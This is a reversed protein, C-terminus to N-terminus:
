FELVCFFIKLKFWLGETSELKLLQLIAVTLNKKSEKQKFPEAFRNLIIKRNRQRRWFSRRNRVSNLHQVLLTINVPQYVKLFPCNWKKTGRWSTTRSYFGIEWNQGELIRKREETRQNRKVVVWCVDISLYSWNKIFDCCVAICMKEFFMSPMSVKDIEQKFEQRFTEFVENSKVLADQM